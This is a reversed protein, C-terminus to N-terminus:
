RDISTTFSALTGDNAYTLQKYSMGTLGADVLSTPAAIGSTDFKMTDTTSAPVANPNWNASDSWITDGATGTWVMDTAHAFQASLVTVAAAAMVLASNKYMRVMNRRKLVTKINLMM